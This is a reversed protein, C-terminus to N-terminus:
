TDHDDRKKKEMGELIEEVSYSRRCIRVTYFRFFLSAALVLLSICALSLLAARATPMDKPLSFGAVGLLGATSAAIVQALRKGLEKQFSESFHSM